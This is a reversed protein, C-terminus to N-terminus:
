SVRGQYHLSSGMDTVKNVIKNNLIRDINKLRNSTIVMLKMLYRENTEPVTMLLSTVGNENLVPIISGTELREQTDGSDGSLQFIAVGLCRFCINGWQFILGSLGIRL